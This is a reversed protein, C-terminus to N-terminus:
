RLRKAAIEEILAATVHLDSWTLGRQLATVTEVPVGTATSLANPDHARLVQALEALWIAARPSDPLPQGDPWPQIWDCPRKV